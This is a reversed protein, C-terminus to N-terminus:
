WLGYKGFQMAYWGMCLNAVAHMVIVALLSKSRVTVWYALSGFILAGFYDVEAHSIVFLGTVVVYSILGPTGFPVKWYRGTPGDRDLVYRMLFGRWFLEEAFSVMVVARLFRLGVFVYYAVSGSDFLLGDFGERREQVGLRKLWGEPDSDYGIWEYLQTPLIWFGIGVVGMGGGFWIWKNWVIEYHKWFFALAGGVLIVEVALLWYEPQRRWWVLDPHDRFFSFFPLGMEAGFGLILIVALPVIHALARDEKWRALAASM